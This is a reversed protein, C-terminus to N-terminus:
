FSQTIITGHTATASEVYLKSQIRNKLEGVHTILGVTLNSQRLKELSDTVANILEEDLTGFGEDLFFFNIPKVAKKIIQNSLALALSLSVLFTEGGSLGSVPRKISGKLHDIIFFDEDYVLGYKGNTLELVRDQAMTAIDKLYEDAIYEMFRNNKLLELLKSYLLRKDKIAKLTENIICWKEYNKLGMEYTNKIEGSKKNIEDFIETSNKRNQDFFELNYYEIPVNVLLLNIEEIRLNLASLQKNYSEVTAKNKEIQTEKALIERLSEETLGSSSLADALQKEFQTFANSLQEVEGLGKALLESAKNYEVLAIEHASKIGKIQNEGKAIQENVTKLANEFSYEGIIKKLEFVLADCEERLAKGSKQDREQERELANIQLLLNECKENLKALQNNLETNEKLRVTVQNLLSLLDLSSEQHSLLVRTKQIQAEILENVASKDDKLAGNLQALLSSLFQLHDKLIQATQENSAGESLQRLMLSLDFKKIQQEIEGISKLASERNSKLNKIEADRESYIRRLQNLQEKKQLIQKNTLEFALITARKEILEAKAKEISECEALKLIANDLALKKASKESTLQELKKNSNNLEDQTKDRNQLIGKLKLATDFAKIEEEFGEIVSKYACMEKIRAQKQECESKLECVRKSEQYDRNAKDVELKAKDVKLKYEEYQKKLEEFNQESIEGLATLKGLEHTESNALERDKEAVRDYLDKGYKQLNFLKGIVKLRDGRTMKVFASFEGQPLAICKLFDDKELGIIETKIKENVQKAGEAIPIEGLPTIEWLFVEPQRLNKRAKDFKYSRVIRYKHEVANTSALFVLEVEASNSSVNIFNANSVKSVAVDGYLALVISDLITSKGSGTKGFIGFIGNKALTEFNITQKECISKIGTINLLLPRM